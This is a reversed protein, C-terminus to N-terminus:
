LILLSFFAAIFACIFVLLFTSNCFIPVPAYLGLSRKMTWSFYWWSTILSISKLFSFYYIGLLSWLFYFALLLFILYASHFILWICVLLSGYTLSFSICGGSWLIWISPFCTSFFRSLNMRLCMFSLHSRPYRGCLIPM